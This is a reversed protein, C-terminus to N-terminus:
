SLGSASSAPTLLRCFLEVINEIFGNQGLFEANAVITPGKTRKSWSQKEWGESVNHLM